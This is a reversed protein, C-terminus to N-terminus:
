VVPTLSVSPIALSDEALHQEAEALERAEKEADERDITFGVIKKSTVEIIEMIQPQSGPLPVFGLTWGPTKVFAATSFATRVAGSEVRKYTKLDFSM